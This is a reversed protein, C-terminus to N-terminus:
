KVSDYCQFIQLQNSTHWNWKFVTQRIESYSTFTKRCAFVFSIGGFILIFLLFSCIGGGICLLFQSNSGGYISKLLIITRDLPKVSRLFHFKVWHFFTSCCARCGSTIIRNPPLKACMWVLLHLLPLSIDPKLCSVAPPILRWAAHSWFAFMLGFRLPHTPILSWIGTDKFSKLDLNVKLKWKMNVPKLVIDFFHLLAM